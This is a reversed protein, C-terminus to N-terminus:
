YVLGVKVSSAAGTMASRSRDLMTTGDLGETDIDYVAAVPPSADLESADECAVPGVATPDTAAIASANYPFKGVTGVYMVGGTVVFKEEASVYIVDFSSISSAWAFMVFFWPMSCSYWNVMDLLKFLNLASDCSKWAFILFSSRSNSSAM